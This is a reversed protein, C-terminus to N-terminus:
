KKLNEKVYSLVEEAHKSSDVKDYIKRVKGEKDIVFTKRQALGTTGLVGFAKATQKDSDALLPFNLGEKDTFAQQDKLTDTSVGIVM